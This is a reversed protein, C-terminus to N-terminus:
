QPPAEKEIVVWPDHRLKELQSQTVQYAEAKQTLVLGACRYKPYRTKHRLLALGTEEQSEPSPPNGGAGEAPAETDQESETGAKGSVAQPNFGAEKLLKWADGIKLSKEKCLGAVIENRKKGEPEANLKEIWSALDITGSSGGSGGADPALVPLLAFMFPLLNKM